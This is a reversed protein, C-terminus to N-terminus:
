VLHALAAEDGREMASEADLAARDRGVTVIALTRGARRLAVAADRAELNGSVDVREWDKAHGVYNLVTDYHASWFFPVIDCRMAEGLINRAAVQGMREAVVWHEVRIPDGSRADPWQAVDGVAWIRPASTRLYADVVIGDKVALGAARALAVRPTVGAGVVVFDARISQGNALVVHTPEIAAASTGLHFVVGHEEHVKRVFAGLADGFVRALPLAGRAVVHVELGRARLSAAVELGIFGAGLV